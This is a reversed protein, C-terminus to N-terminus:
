PTDETFSLNDAETMDFHFTKGLCCVDRKPDTARSM